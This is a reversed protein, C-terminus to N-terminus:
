SRRGKPSPRPRLGDVLLDVVLEAAEDASLGDDTRTRRLALQGILGACAVALMRPPGPRVLGREQADVVLAELDDIFRELIGAAHREFPEGLSAPERFLLRAAGADDDFFRFTARVARRLVADAGGRRADGLPDGDTGGLAGAITSRLREEEAAMLAHVLEDKSAFYWYAVGYSLGAARAVDAMTTDHYGRRALVERAADLLQQRRALKDEDSVARRLTRQTM